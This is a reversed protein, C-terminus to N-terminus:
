WRDKAEGVTIGPPYQLEGGRGQWRNVILQRSVLIHIISRYDPLPWRPRAQRTFYARSFIQNSALNGYGASQQRRWAIQCFGRLRIETILSDMGKEWFVFEPEAKPEKYRITKGGGNDDFGWSHGIAKVPSVVWAATSAFLNGTKGNSSLPISRAYAAAPGAQLRDPTRTLHAVRNFLYFGFPLAPLSFGVLAATIPDFSFIDQRRAIAGVGETFITFFTASGIYAKTIQTLDTKM